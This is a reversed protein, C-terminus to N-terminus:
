WLRCPHESTMKQGKSCSFAKSFEPMNVMVGNVRNEAPPHPDTLVQMRMTGPDIKNEKMWQKYATVYSHEEPTREKEPKQLIAIYKDERGPEKGQHVKATATDAIKKIAPPTEAEDLSHHKGSGDVWGIVNGEKDNVLGEHGPKEASGVEIDYRDTEPNFQKVKGDVITTSGIPKSKPQPDLM